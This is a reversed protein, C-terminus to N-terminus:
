GASDASAVDVGFSGNVQLDLLGASLTGDVLDHDVVEDGTAPHVATIRGAAVDVVVPGTFAGDVLARAARLRM